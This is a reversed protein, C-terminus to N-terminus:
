NVAEQPTLMAMVAPGVAEWDVYPRQGEGPHILPCGFAADDIYLHAYLKPSKTWTVQEPNENVGFFKIGFNECHKVAQTLVDGNEQGDSRMTWLLLRAGAEQFKRMWEIAGPVPEGVRPFKHEVITGDFDIAINM